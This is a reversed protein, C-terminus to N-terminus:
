AAHPDARSSEMEPARLCSSPHGKIDSPLLSLSWLDVRGRRPVREYARLIGERVFGAREAAALSLENDLDILATIREVQLSDFAWTGVARLASTM